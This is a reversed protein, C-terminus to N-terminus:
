PGSLSFPLATTWNIFHRASRVTHITLVKEEVMPCLYVSTTYALQQTSCPFLSIFEVHVLQVEARNQLRMGPPFQLLDKVFHFRAITRSLFVWEVLPLNLPDGSFM